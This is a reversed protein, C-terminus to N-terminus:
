VDRLFLFFSADILSSNFLNQARQLFIVFCLSVLFCTAYFEHRIRPVKELASEVAYLGCCGCM